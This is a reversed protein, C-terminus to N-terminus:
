RCDHGVGKQATGHCFKLNWSESESDSESRSLTPVSEEGAESDIPAVGGAGHAAAEARRAAQGRDWYPEDPVEGRARAREWRRRQRRHSATYREAADLIQWIAILRIYLWIHSTM